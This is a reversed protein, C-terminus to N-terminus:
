TTLCLLIRSQLARILTRFPSYILVWKTLTILWILLLRIARKLRKRRIMTLARSFRLPSARLQRWIRMQLCVRLRTLMTRMIRYLTRLTRSFPRWVALLSNMSRMDTLLVRLWCVLLRLRRVRLRLRLRLFLVWLRKPLRALRAWLATLSRTM